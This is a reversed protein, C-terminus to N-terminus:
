LFWLTSVLDFYLWGLFSQEEEADWVLYVLVDDQWKIDLAREGHLQRSKNEDVLEFRINFLDEYLKLTNRVVTHLEFYEMTLKTDFQKMEQQRNSYFSTDWLFVKDSANDDAKKLVLMEDADKRGIKLLEPRVEELMDLVVSPHKMMKNSMKFQAWSDYGRMRALSDRLTVIDHALPINAPLRNQHEIFYQKRTEESVCFKLISEHHSRKMNVWYKGTHEGEGKKLKDLVLAPLGELAASELWLGSADEDLNSAYEQMLSQLKKLNQKFEVRKDEPLGCGNELFQAHHKVLYRYTEPDVSDERTKKLVADVLSFMDERNYRDIEAEDALRKGKKSAERVERSPHTTAYLYVVDYIIRMENENHAVPLITNEISAEGPVVSATVADWVEETKAITAQADTLVSEPTPNFLPPLHAPESEAHISM